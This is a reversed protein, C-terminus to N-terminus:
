DKAPALLAGLVAAGYDRNMHVFDNAPHDIEDAALRQSGRCFVHRTFLGLDDLCAAPPQVARLNDPLARALFRDIDARMATLRAPATVDGPLSKYFKRAKPSGDSLFPQGVLVLRTKPLAQALGTVFGILPQALWADCIAGFLGDSLPTFQIGPFYRPLYYPSHGMVAYVTDYDDFRIEGHGGSTLKFTNEVQPTTPRLTSGNLETKLMDQLHAGFIDIERPPSWIDLAQKLAAVHSNGLICVRTM